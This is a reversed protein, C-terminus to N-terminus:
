VHWFIFLFFIRAIHVWVLHHSVNCPNISNLLIFLAFFLSFSSFFMPRVSIISTIQTEAPSSRSRFFFSSCRALFSHIFHLHIEINSTSNNRSPCFRFSRGFWLSRSLSIFRIVTHYCRHGNVCGCNAILVRLMWERNKTERKTARKESDNM